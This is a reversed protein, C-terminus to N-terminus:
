SIICRRTTPPKDKRREQGFGGWVCLCVCRFRILKTVEHEKAQYFDCFTTFSLELFSCYGAKQWKFTLTLLRSSVLPTKLFQQLTHHRSTSELVTWLFISIGTETTLHVSIDGFGLRDLRWQVARAQVKLDWRRLGFTNRRWPETNEQMFGRHLGQTM